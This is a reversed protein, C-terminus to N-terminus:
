KQSKSRKGNRNNKKAAARLKKPILHRAIVSNMMNLYEQEHRVLSNLWGALCIALPRGREEPGLPIPIALCGAGSTVLERSFFYNNKRAFEINSFVTKLNLSSRAKSESNTRRVLLPVEKVNMNTLLCFGAASWVLPRRTGVPIHLRLSKTAQVVHIYQAFRGNPAAIMVTEGSLESLEESAQLLASDRVFGQTLWQGLLSVRRSPVYLRTRPDFDLFGLEMMSRLLFSTSSQPIGLKESIEGSKAERQVEEFFELVRLAREASKVGSAENPAADVVTHETHNNSKRKM